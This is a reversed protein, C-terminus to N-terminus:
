KPCLLVKTFVHHSRYLGASLQSSYLRIYSILVSDKSNRFNQTIQTRPLESLSSKERILVSCHQTPPSIREFDQFEVRIQEWRSTPYSHIQFYSCSSSSRHFSTHDHSVNMSVSTSNWARIKVMFSLTLKSINITLMFICAAIPLVFRIVTLTDFDVSSSNIFCLSLNSCSKYPHM